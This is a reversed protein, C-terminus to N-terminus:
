LFARCYHFSDSRSWQNLYSDVSIFFRLEWWIRWVELFVLYRAFHLVMIVLLLFFGAIFVFWYTILIVGGWIIAGTDLTWDSQGNKNITHYPTSWFHMCFVFIHCVNSLTHSIYLLVLNIITGEVGRNLSSLQIAVALGLLTIFFLPHPLPLSWLRMIDAPMKVGNSSKTLLSLWPPPPPSINEGEDM